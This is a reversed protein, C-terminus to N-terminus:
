RGQYDADQEEEEAADHQEEPQIVKQRRSGAVDVRAGRWAGFEGGQGRGDRDSEAIFEGELGSDCHRRRDGQRRRSFLHIRVPLLKSGRARVRAVRVM